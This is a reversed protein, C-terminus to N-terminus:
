ANSAELEQGLYAEIVHPDSTIQKPTGMAIKKGFDLVVINDCLAMIARMVHEIMVITIGYERNVKKLLAVVQDVESDTLGAVVEDLLIIEPDTALAKAVELRKRDAITLSETLFNAKELMDVDQLVEYSKREAAKTNSDRVLAGIMVTELVTLKPFAQTIQFTRALRKKCIVHPLLGTIDEGKLHVKGETPPMVGSLLNFTTTKGAGNPGIIGFIEGKRVKFSVECVAALGGFYRSLNTAELIIEDENISRAVPNLIKDQHEQRTPKPQALMEKLLASEPDFLDKVLKKTKISYSGNLFSSLLRKKLNQLLSIFGDPLYLIIVMLIIGYIVLHSGAYKQGIQARIIETFPVLVVAGIVPGAITGAGGALMIILILGAIEWFFATYPDIYTVYMAWFSGCMALMFAALANSIMKYKMVNVGLSEAAEQNERISKFWYGLKSNAVWSCVALVVIFLGLMIYYYPLKSRFLMMWPKDETIILNLGLAGGFGPLNLFVAITVTLLAMTGMAFYVDKLGYRFFIYGIVAAVLTAGISAIFMGIWPSINFNLLLVFTFYAGFGSYLSSIFCIQGTFGGLINFASAMAGWMLVMTAISLWYPPFNPPVVALLGILLLTGIMTFISRPSLNKM